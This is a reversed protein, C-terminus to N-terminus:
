PQYQPLSDCARDAMGAKGETGAKGATGPSRATGARGATGRALAAATVRAVPAQQPPVRSVARPVVGERLRAEAATLNAPVAEVPVAELPVAEAGTPQAEAVAEGAAIGM